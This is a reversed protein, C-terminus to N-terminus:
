EERLFHKSEKYYIFVDHILQFRFSSMIYLNLLELENVRVLFIVAFSSVLRMYLDVVM